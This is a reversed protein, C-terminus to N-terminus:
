HGQLVMRRSRAMHVIADFSEWNRAARGIGGYVVLSKPNEAVDPHLNNQLMRYPAETLWSKCHLTSGTPAAIDRSEDRRTFENNKVEANESIGNDTTM